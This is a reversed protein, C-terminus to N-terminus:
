VATAVPQSDTHLEDAEPTLVRQAEELAREAQGISSTLQERRTRIESLQTTGPTRGTLERLEAQLREIDRAIRRPAERDLEYVGSQTGKRVAPSRSIQTLFVALGDKGAVAYGERTLLEFWERYHMAEIGGHRVLVRVATERIAPGRLLRGAEVEAIGPEPVVSIVDVDRGRESRTGHAVSGTAIAGDDQLQQPALQDLLRERDEIEALVREIERLRDLTAKREADLRARQHGLEAREADAARLLRSSTKLDTAAMPRSVQLPRPPM